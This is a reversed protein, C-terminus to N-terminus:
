KSLTMLPLKQQELGLKVHASAAKSNKIVADSDGKAAAATAAKLSADATTWLAGKAKAGKVDSEAWTLAMKAEDTLTAKSPAPPASQCAALSFMSAVVVAILFQKQM